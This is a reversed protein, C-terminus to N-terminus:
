PGGQRWEPSVVGNDTSFKDTHSIHTGGRDQRKSLVEAPLLCQYVGRPSVETQTEKWLLDRQKPEDNCCHCLRVGTVTQRTLLQPLTLNPGAMSFASLTFTVLLQDCLGEGGPDTGASCTSFLLNGTPSFSFLSLSLSLSGLVSSLCTDEPAHTVGRLTPGLDALFAGMDWSDSLFSDIRLPLVFSATSSIQLSM